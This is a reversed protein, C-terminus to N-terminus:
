FLLFNKISKLMRKKELINLLLRINLRNNNNFKSNKEGIDETM